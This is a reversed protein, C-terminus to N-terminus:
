FGEVVGIRVGKVIMKVKATEEPTRPWIEIRNSQGPKVWPYLNIQMINPYPHFSQNYGIVRGNVVVCGVWREAVEFELFVQKGKWAEPLPVATELHRGSAKLPLTAPTNKRNDAYLKWGQRLEIPQQLNELAYAVLQGVYGGRVEQADVAVALLNDGEHVHATVDLVDFNAWGHGRYEGVPQGNVFAEAHELFVPYDYSVFALLVRRGQWAPPVRFTRRYVGVGRAAYGMEDWFGYSVDRWPPGATSRSLWSSGESIKGEGAPLQCFRFSDM